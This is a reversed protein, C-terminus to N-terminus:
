FRQDHFGNSRSASARDVLQAVVDGLPINSGPALHTGGLACGARRTVESVLLAPNSGGALLPAPHPATTKERGRRTLEQTLTRGVSRFIFLYRVTGSCDSEACLSALPLWM